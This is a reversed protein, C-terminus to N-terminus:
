RINQEIGSLRIEDDPIPFVYKASNPDLTYIAGNLERIITKEFQPEQNLRRLDIWRLGRFILEKRRERLILKLAEESDNASFPTYTGSKWRTELLTNLTTMALGVNGARALCEARILYMEDTALGHFLDTLGTYQGKFFYEGPSVSRFFLVRRLDDIDYEKILLTDILRKSSPLFDNSGTNLSNLFIVEKNLPTSPFTRTKTSDFLNYNELINYLTLCSDAYKGANEYDGMTLYVRALLAYAAPKSPRNRHNIQVVNLLLEKAENLDQIIQNYTESLKSRVSVINPNSEIRLPIGLDVEASAPAYPKSLNQGLIFFFCSRYFLATGKTIDWETENIPTKAIKKLGDLVINCINIMKYPQNWDDVSAGEYPDDSWIYSNRFIPKFTGWDPYKLYYDDCAIEGLSPSFDNIADAELLLFYDEVSQPEILSIDPSKDLFQKQCSISLILIVLLTTHLFNTHVRIAM